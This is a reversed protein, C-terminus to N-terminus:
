YVVNINAYSGGKWASQMEKVGGDALCMCTCRQESFLANSRDPAGAGGSPCFVRSFCRLWKLLNITFSMTLIQHASRQQAQLGLTRRELFVSLLQRGFCGRCDGAGSGGVGGDAM